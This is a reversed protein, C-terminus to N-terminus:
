SIRGIRTSLCGLDTLRHILIEAYELWGEDEIDRPVVVVSEGLMCLLVSLRPEFSRLAWKVENLLERREADDLLGSTEAFNDSEHIFEIQYSNQSDVQESNSCSFDIFILIIYIIRKM